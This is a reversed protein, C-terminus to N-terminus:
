KKVKEKNLWVYMSYMEIDKKPINDYDPDIDQRLITNTPNQKIKAQM